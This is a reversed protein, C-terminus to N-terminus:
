PQDDIELEGSCKSHVEPGPLGWDRRRLTRRQFVHLGTAVLDEAPCWPVVHGTAPGTTRHDVKRVRWTMDGYAM